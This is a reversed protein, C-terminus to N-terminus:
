AGYSRVGSKLAAVPVWRRCCPICAALVRDARLWCVYQAAASLIGPDDRAGKDIMDNRWASFKKVQLPLATIGPTGPTV